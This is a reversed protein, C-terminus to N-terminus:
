SEKLMNLIMRLNKSCQAGFEDLNHSFATSGTALKQFVMRYSTSRVEEDSVPM